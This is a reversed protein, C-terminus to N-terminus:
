KGGSLYAIGAGTIGVSLGVVGWVVPNWYWAPNKLQYVKVQLDYKSRQLVHKEKQLENIRGIDKINAEQAKSLKDLAITYGDADKKMARLTGETILLWEGPILGYEELAKKVTPM